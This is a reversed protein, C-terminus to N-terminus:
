LHQGGAPLAPRTGSKRAAALWLAALVITAMMMPTRAPYDFASALLILLLMASGLRAIALHSGARWARISAWGWWAIAGLLLLLGPLGGDLVVEILDDHAHNFYTPKLLAFPEHIRFIPDFGGYGAGFPFYTGIMAFVTPLGRSRMDQGPDIEFTRSISVARDAAVSILVFIAIVAVMAALLAPLVWRPYRSLERKISGRTVLLGLGLALAGLAMGARSGSALITLLFLVTLGFGVPARWHPRRGDLFAWAPVLLCGLALFLAYHNRNAFSGSMMGPTENILPNDLGAGSLQLLGLLTSAAVVCLLLGPLWERERERIGTALLLTAAPVILSGAANATAGPVISWPRWPQAQGSASAAEALMARGPLAQWMAPPLPILQVLALAITAALLLGVPRAHGFSPRGGFLIAVVVVSWAVSRVVAQGLLDGRSGGGAVLLAIM